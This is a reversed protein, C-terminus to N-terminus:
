KKYVKNIWWKKVFPLSLTSLFYGVAPILANGWVAGVGIVCLFVVVVLYILFMVLLRRTFSVEWAKDTEVRKNREQINKVEENM